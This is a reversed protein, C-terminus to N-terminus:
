AAEKNEQGNSDCGDQLANLEAALQECSKRVADVLTQSTILGPTSGTSALTGAREYVMRSFRETWLDFERFAQRTIRDARSGNSDTM